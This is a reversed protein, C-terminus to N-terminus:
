KVAREARLKKGKITTSKLGELVLKGKGNLIDVYSCIDQIDIIGIDEPNIGPINTIGGVIDGARIKKKKGESIYIKTIDKDLKDTKQEKLKPAAKIKEIFAKESSEISEKTIEKGLSIKFGIYEEIQKLFRDEYPTILSIARGERGARGTRGTRHVYSEKELPIDYNIIHTVNEVDIGRSALDTAVLFIFEGRKFRKMIDIRKDQMMGGHIAKCPYGKDEMLKVVKNVNEQTRCFIISSDPNETIIIKNLLDFKNGEEIEYYTHEIKEETLEEPNVEIVVPSKMYKKCLIEIKEPITASFLMNVRKKPLREMINEVQDIFGMNFMEDGEDVIFYKIKDLEITGREIHDLTRGPTGVVIHTRQNLERAQMKFPQKGFVASCKVRKFRGINKIDEKVQICLERTPTLILAQPKKEELDINECIPIGFAATKGSGTKSKVIIDKNKIAVPIVKKQVQSPKKYGLKLLAELIDESIGLSKFNMDDM